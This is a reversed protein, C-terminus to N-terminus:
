RAFVLGVSAFADFEGVRAVVEGSASIIAGCALRHADLVRQLRAEM